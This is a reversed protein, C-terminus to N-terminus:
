LWKQACLPANSAPRASREDIPRLSSLAHCLRTRARFYRTRVTAKPIGLERATEVVSLENVARLVFVNRYAAPLAEVRNWILQRLESRVAMHEPLYEDNCSATTTADDFANERGTGPTVVQNLRARKRLCTLAENVAIRVLWTSLKSAGRFRHLRRYALLFANQVVDEADTDDKVIARVTRYLLGKFRRVLMSFAAQDGSVITEVLKSDFAASENDLEVSRHAMVERGTGSIGCWGGAIGIRRQRVLFLADGGVLFGAVM